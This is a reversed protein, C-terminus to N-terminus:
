AYLNDDSIWFVFSIIIYLTSISVLWQVHVCVQGINYVTATLNAEQPHISNLSLPETGLMWVIECDTASLSTSDEVSLPQRSLVPEQM